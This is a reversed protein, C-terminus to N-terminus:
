GYGNENRQALTLFVEKLDVTCMEREEIKNLEDMVDANLFKKWAEVVTDAAVQVEISVSYRPM